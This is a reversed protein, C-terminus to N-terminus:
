KKMAKVFRNRDGINGLRLKFVDKSLKDAGERVYKNFLIDSSVVYLINRQYKFFYWSGYNPSQIYLVFDDGARRKTMELRGQISRELRNKEISNIGLAGESVMSRKVPDWVMHLESFMFTSQLESTLRLANESVDDTVKQVEKETVMEALAKKMFLEKFMPTGSSSTQDYISDYMIKVAPAPLPFNLLGALHMAFSTDAASYTAIGGTKFTFKGEEYGFKFRGEGITNQTKENVRLVNGRLADGFLKESPGMRFETAKEDYYLTGEVKMLEPDSGNRKRTFFAAYTHASDNSVYFGNTLAQKDRNTIKDQVKIFISDANIMATNRFWDTRPFPMDHVPLFFGDYELNRLVSKVFV